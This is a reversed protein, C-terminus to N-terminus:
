IPSQFLDGLNKEYRFHQSQLVTVRAITSNWRFYGQGTALEPKFMETLPFNVLYLADGKM